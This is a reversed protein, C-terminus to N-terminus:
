KFSAEFRQFEPHQYLLNRGAEILAELQPDSLNLSTPIRNFYQREEASGSQLSVNVFYASVPKQETSLRQAWDKVEKEFLTLTAANYRHLQADAIGNVTEALSPEERSRGMTVDVKTSADVSIVLIRSPIAGEIGRVANEIGGSLQVNEYIARLGLNDTIGGDVLHIYRRGEKDGFSELGDIVLSMEENGELRSKAQALWPPSGAGCDDHNELVVPSFVLPVAASAVVARAVPFARVDSCLLDFYSPMFSLRVGGGLDSANLIITPRGPRNIENIRAGQFLHKDLLDVMVESRGKDSFLQSFRSVGDILEAQVDRRLFREEYGDFIGEGVLGYYAATFTGGSVASISDVYELLPERAVQAERLAKLVGYSLAAARHGGGSFALLVSVPAANDVKHQYKQQVGSFPQHENIKHKAANEVVGVSSCGTLLALLGLAFRRKRAIFIQASTFM